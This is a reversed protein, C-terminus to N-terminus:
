RSEDGQKRRGALQGCAADIDKGRSKRVTVTPVWCHLQKAFWDVLEESPRKFGCEDIPNYALVNIKCSIGKVLRGLTKIDEISDNFGKFLTYEFTIPIGTKGTYYKLTKMLDNLKYTKAVPMIKERKQQTAANLSVALKVKYGTDALKRIGPVIGSTSITIKRPSHSFGMENTIIGIAEMVNDYNLMPEGMGMFVISNFANEGLDDRLYILQGVIEGVTLNRLFGIAGTACFSCGLACGSQSSVCATCRGSSVEPILVTEILNGDDLRFLYKRTGDKSEAVEESQLGTITFEKNLKQRLESSLDTMLEFDYQRVGYLWKFLQKGRYQKEGYGTM